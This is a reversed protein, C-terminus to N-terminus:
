GKYLENNKKRNAIQEKTIKFHCSKCLTICIDPNFFDEDELEGEITHHVELSKESGCIVCRNEDREKVEKAVQRWKYTNYKGENARRTNEFPKAKEPKIFGAEKCEDCYEGFAEVLNFCGVRRCQYVLM